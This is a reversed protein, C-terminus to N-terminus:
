FPLNKNKRNLYNIRIRQFINPTTLDKWNEVETYGYAWHYKLNECQKCRVVKEVLFYQGDHYYCQEKVEKCKCKPCKEKIKSM